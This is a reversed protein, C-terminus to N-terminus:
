VEIIQVMQEEEEEEEEESDEEYRKGKPLIPPPAQPPPPPPPSFKPVMAVYKTIKPDVVDPGLAIGNAELDVCICMYIGRTINVYVSLLMWGLGFCIFFLFVGVVVMSQVSEIEIATVGVTASVLAVMLVCMYILANGVLGVSMQLANDSLEITRRTASCYGFGYMATIYNSNTAAIEWCAQTCILIWEAFTGIISYFRNSLKIQRLMDLIERIIWFITLVFSGFCMTGMHYRVLLITGSKEFLKKGVTPRDLFFLLNRM